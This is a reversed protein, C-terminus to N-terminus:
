LLARWIIGLVVLVLLSSFDFMGTPPLARRVRAIVPETASFLFRAVRSRRTPDVWSIWIRGLVLLWAFAVVAGVLVRFMMAM